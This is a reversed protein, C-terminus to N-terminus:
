EPCERLLEELLLGVVKIDIDNVLYAVVGVLSQRLECARHIPDVLLSNQVQQHNRVLWGVIITQIDSVLDSVINFEHHFGVSQRTDMDSRRDQEISDLFSAYRRAPRHFLPLFPEFLIYGSSRTATDVSKFEIRPCLGIALM